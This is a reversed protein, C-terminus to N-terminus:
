GRPASSRLVGCRPRPHPLANRSAEQSTRRSRWPRLNNPTRAGAVVPAKQTATEQARAGGAPMAACRGEPPAASVM